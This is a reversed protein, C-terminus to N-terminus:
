QTSRRDVHGLTIKCTAFLAAKLQHYHREPLFSATIAVFLFRKGFTLHRFLALKQMTMKEINDLVLVHRRGDELERNLVKFRGPKYKIYTDGQKAAYAPFLEAILHRCVDGPTRSFDIFVFRWKDQGIEAIHRLLSTRGIGFRGSVIVNECRELAKIISKTERSRGVFYM